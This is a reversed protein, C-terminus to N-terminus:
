TSVQGQFREWRFLVPPVKVPYRREGREADGDAQV